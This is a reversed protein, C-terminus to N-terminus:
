HRRITPFTYRANVDGRAFKPLFPTLLYKVRFYNKNEPLLFFDHFLDCIVHFVFGIFVARAIPSFVAVAGLVSLFEFTHFICCIHYNVWSRDKITALHWRVAKFPSWQGFAWINWLWHDIDILLSSLFVLAVSPLDLFIALVISFWASHKLHDVPMM